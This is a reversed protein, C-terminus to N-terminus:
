PGLAVAGPEMRREFVRVDEVERDEEVEAGQVVGAHGRRGARPVAAIPAPVRERGTAGDYRLLLVDHPVDAHHAHIVKPVRKVQDLDRLVRPMRIIRSLPRQKHQVLSQTPM